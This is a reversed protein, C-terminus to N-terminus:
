LVLLCLALIHVKYKEVLGPNPDAEVKVIKLKGDLEQLLQCLVHFETCRM